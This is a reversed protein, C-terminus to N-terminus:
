GDGGRALFIGDGPELVAGRQAGLRVMEAEVDSLTMTQPVDALIPAIDALIRDAMM